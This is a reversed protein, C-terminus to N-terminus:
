SRHVCNQQHHPRLTLQSFYLYIIQLSSGVIYIKYIPGSKPHGFNSLCISFPWWFRPPSQVSWDTRERSSTPPAAGAQKKGAICDLQVRVRRAQGAAILSYISRRWRLAANGRGTTGTTSRLWREDVERNSRMAIHRRVLM